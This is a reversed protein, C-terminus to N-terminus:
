YPGSTCERVSEIETTCAQLNFHEGWLVRSGFRDSELVQETLSESDYNNPVSIELTVRLSISIIKM